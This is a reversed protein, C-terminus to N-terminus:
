KKYADKQVSDLNALISDLEDPAQVYQVIAKWFAQNMADPMLDSADFRVAKASAIIAGAKKSLADPYADLPVRKNAGLKGGRAVWIAQAEPSTMYKIFARAQPTDKYMAFSDGVVEYTGSFQPNIDPFGFFNYDVGAKLGPTNSEFFSTIFSAQHHLYCAPPTKFLGDGGNGFNLTLVSNPGGNVMKPDTAVSGFTQWAQKIEPSSWTQTGQYWKDYVDVGAQRLVIDEIWDTAPWGSAAGSELGICWPTTGADAQTETWAQLEDWTKPPNPGKYVNPDYWILGKLGSWAFVKVLKGNVTGLDIWSQAYDSKLQAMDVIPTLDILKGEAAWSAALSASPAAAIDPPNGGNVRTTLVAALDRTSEFDVKVGTADEFPKVVALFSDQESGAWVALIDLTGGLQKGGAAALAVDKPDKLATTTGSTATAAPAQTAAAATPFATAAAATPAVTTPATTLTATTPAETPPVATPTPRILPLLVVAGFCGLLLLAIAGGIWVWRNRRQSPATPAPVSPSPTGPKGVGVNPALQQVETVPQPPTQVPTPSIVSKPPPISGPAAVAAKPPPEIKEKAPAAFPVPPPDAQPSPRPLVAAAAPRERMLGDLASAYGGATPYRDDPKRSVARAVVAALGVPAGAPPWGAGFDPDEILHKTIVEDPTEGSFLTRGTLMEFTVCGLAYV